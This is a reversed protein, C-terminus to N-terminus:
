KIWDKIDVPDGRVYVCPVIAETNLNCNDEGHSKCKRGLCDRRFPRGKKDVTCYFRAPNGIVMTYPDVDKVVNAGQGVCSGEGIRVGAGILAGLGIRANREIIPPELHSDDVADVGVMYKDNAMKVGPGIFVNDGIVTGVPISVHCQILCNKGIIVNRSIDHGAGIKTGKGIKASKDIWGPQYAIYQKELPTKDM